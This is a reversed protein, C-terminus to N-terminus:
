CFARYKLLVSYLKATSFNIIIKTTKKKFVNFMELFLLFCFNLESHVLHIIIIIISFDAAYQPQNCHTYVINSLHTFHIVGSCFHVNMERWWKMTRDKVSVSSPHVASM